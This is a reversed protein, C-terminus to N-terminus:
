ANRIALFSSRPLVRRLPPFRLTTMAAPWSAAGWGGGARGRLAACGGFAFAFGWGRFGSAGIGLAQRGVGLVSCRVGLVWCRGQGGDGM